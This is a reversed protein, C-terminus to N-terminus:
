SRRTAGPSSGGPRWSGDPYQVLLRYISDANKHYRDFSLEDQVWLLILMACTLGMALGVINIMSYTKHRTLNRFATKLYTSFM